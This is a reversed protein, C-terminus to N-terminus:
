FQYREYIRLTSTGVPSAQAQPGAPWVVVQFLYTDAVAPNNWPRLAVTVTQGPAVPEPFDVILRRAKEEFVARVPLTRGQQRPRGLFATTLEPSYQFNWDAGRSQQFSIRALSAGADPDLSLTLYWTVPGSGAISDYSILDAKWPSRVFVTTGHLELARAVPASAIGGGGLPLLLALAALRGLSCRSLSPLRAPM